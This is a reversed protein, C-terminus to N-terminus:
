YFFGPLDRQCGPQRGALTLRVTAQCFRAGPKGRVCGAKKFSKKSTM